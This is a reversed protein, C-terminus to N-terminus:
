SVFSVPMADDQVCAIQLGQQSSVLGPLVQGTRSFESKVSSFGSVQQRHPLGVRLPM